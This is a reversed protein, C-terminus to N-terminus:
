NLKPVPPTIAVRMIIVGVARIFIIPAVAHFNGRCYFGYNGTIQKKYEDNTWNNKNPIQGTLL